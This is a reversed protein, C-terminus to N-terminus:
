PLSLRIQMVLPTPINAGAMLIPCKQMAIQSYQTVPHQM